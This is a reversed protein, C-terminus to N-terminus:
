FYNFTGGSYEANIIHYLDKNKLNPLSFIAGHKKAEEFLMKRAVGPVSVTDKFLDIKKNFYFKCLSNVATVFPYVDLKNYWILLDELTKMNEKRWVEQMWLYNEEISHFGDDLVNKKKLSSWWDKIPPLTREQLKSKCTVYEYPFFGKREEVDFSRLFNAYSTGPSLYQTIDLFKFTGNSICIYSNNKKIIFNEKDKQVQLYKLIKAKVLNIDYRASNFGLVPIESCYKEFKNQITKLQSLMTKNCNTSTEDNVENQHEWYLIIESLKENEEEFLKIKEQKVKEAIEKMYEVMEQILEDTNENVICFPSTFGDVNSCVAVSIPIHNHTWYLKSSSRISVPSLMAEMDFVIFEKFYKKESPISIGVDELEEFITKPSSFFGGVYCLDLKNECKKEHNKWNDRRRFIRKCHICIFKRAYGEMNTIYSLHHEYQNLNMTSEFSSVSKFVSSCCNKKHLEFININVKFCLELHCFESLNVGTFRNIETGKEKNYNLWKQFYYTVKRKFKKIKREKQLHPHFHTTLCRFFCLNDNYYKGKRERNLSLINHNNKIFLPLKVVGGLTYDYPVVTYLVNTILVVKNKTNERQILIHNIIDLTKLVEHFHNIDEKKTIIMPFELVNQNIYPKFYRLKNTEIHRLIFGFALNIKFARTENQFIETVQQVLTEINLKHVPFNYSSVAPTTKHQQLIIPAHMEYINQLDTDIDGDNYWPANEDGNWPLNQLEGSGLQNHQFMYHEYLEQKTPFIHACRHCHYFRCWPKDNTKKKSKKNRKNDGVNETGGM